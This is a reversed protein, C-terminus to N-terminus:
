YRNDRCAPLCKFIYKTNLNCCFAKKCM